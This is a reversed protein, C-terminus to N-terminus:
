ESREPADFFDFFPQYIASFITKKRSVKPFKPLICTNQSLNRPHFTFFKFTDKKYQFVASLDDGHLGTNHFLFFLALILFFIYSFRYLYFALYQM